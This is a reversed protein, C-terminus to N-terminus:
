YERFQVFKFGSIKKGDPDLFDVGADEYSQLVSIDGGVYMATEEAPPEPQPEPDPVPTRGCSFAMAAMMAAVAINIIFLRKM